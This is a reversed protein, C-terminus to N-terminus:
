CPMRKCYQGWTSQDWPFPEDYLVFPSLDSMLGADWDFVLSVRGHIANFDPPQFTDLEFPGNRGGDKANYVWPLTEIYDQAHKELEHLVRSSVPDIIGVFSQFEARLGGPDRYRYNFGFFTEVNPKKDKMWVRQSNDYLKFDGNQFFKRYYDIFEKRLESGISESAKNLSVNIKKLDESHDGRTVLVNEGTDLTGLVDPELTKQSSAILINFRSKGSAPDISKSLRTNTPSLGIEIMFADIDSLDQENIAEPGLYYASQADSSPFGLHSPSRSLMATSCEHLLDTAKSSISCM